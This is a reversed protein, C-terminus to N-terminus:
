RALEDYVILLVSLKDGLAQKQQQIPKSMLSDIFDDTAKVVLPDAKPLPWGEASPSKALKVIEEAPLHALSELTYTAPTPGGPTPPAPSAAASPGRSSLAPTRPSVASPTAIKKAQPTAPTRPVDAVPPTQGEPEDEAELVQRADAIKARLVEANFLCMARERKPLSMLLETLEAAQTSELRAVAVAMRERESLPPVSGSPSETRPPTSISAPMSIPTSPHDPASATAGPAELRSDQSASPSPSKVPSSTKSINLATTAQQVQQSLRNSDQIASVVDSLSLAAITEVIQDLDEAPVTDMSRIRRSLEGSIVEKRVVPSLASLDEYRMPLNLTGALAAQLLDDAVSVSISTYAGVHYYSGSSRRARNDPRDHHSMVPSGLTISRHSPSPWDGIESAAPSTAGSGSRPHHNHGGFRAALKEQRLQKPEHLRVVLQKSGLIVGNM